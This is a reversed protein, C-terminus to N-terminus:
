AGSARRVNRTSPLLDRPLLYVGPQFQYPPPPAYYQPTHQWWQYNLDPIGMPTVPYQYPVSGAGPPYTTAEHIINNPDQQPPEEPHTRDSGARTNLHSRLDQGDTGLDNMFDMEQAEPKNFFDLYPYM